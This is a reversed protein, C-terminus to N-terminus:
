RPLHVLLIKPISSNTTRQKLGMMIEDVEYEKGLELEGEERVATAMIRINKHIKM